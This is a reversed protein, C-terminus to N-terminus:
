DVGIWDIALSFPGAQKDGVLFGIQRVQSRDFPPGALVTGRVSPQLSDLSLRIEAWEDAVSEFGASYSISIGRYQADTTLRLQYRRGDGRIRLVLASVKSLNVAYDVTRVSAFGGNNALSLAGSFHLMGDNLTSRGSSCGGMVDDNVAVWRPESPSEDFNILSRM